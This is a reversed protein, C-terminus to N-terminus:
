LRIIITDSTLDYAPRNLKNEDMLSHSSTGFDGLEMSRLTYTGRAFSLQLSLGPKRRGMLWAELSTVPEALGPFLPLCLCRRVCPRRRRHLTVHLPPHSGKRQPLQEGRAWVGSRTTAKAGFGLSCWHQAAQRNRTIRRLLSLRGAHVTKSIEDAWSVLINQRWNWCFGYLGRLCNRM